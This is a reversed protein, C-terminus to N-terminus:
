WDGSLEDVIAAGGTVADMGAQRARRTSYPQEEGSDGYRRLDSPDEPEDDPVPVLADPLPQDPPPDYSETGGDRVLKTPRGQSMWRDEHVGFPDRYWGEAPLVEM